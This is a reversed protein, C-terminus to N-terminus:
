KRHKINLVIGITFSIAFTVFGVVEMAQMYLFQERTVETYSGHSVLYYHGAEYLEYETAAVNFASGGLIVSSVFFVLFPLSFLAFFFGGIKGDRLSVVIVRITNLFILSTIVAFLIMGINM